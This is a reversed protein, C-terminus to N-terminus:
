PVRLAGGHRDPYSGNAINQLIAVNWDNKGSKKLYELEKKAYKKADNVIHKWMKNYVIVNVGYECVPLSGAWKHAIAFALNRDRTYKCNGWMEVVRTPVYRGRAAEDNQLNGDIFSWAIRDIAQLHAVRYQDKTKLIYIGNDTSM